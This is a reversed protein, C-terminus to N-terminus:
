KSFVGNQFHSKLGFYITETQKTHYNSRTQPHIGFTAVTTYRVPRFPPPTTPTQHYSVSPLLLPTTPHHHPTHLHKLSNGRVAGVGPRIYLKNSWMNWTDGDSRCRRHIYITSIQANRWSIRQLIEKLDRRNYLFSEKHYTMRKDTSCQIFMFGIVSPKLVTFYKALKLTMPAALPTRWVIEIIIRGCPSGSCVRCEKRLPGFLKHGLCTM